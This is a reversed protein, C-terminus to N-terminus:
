CYNVWNINKMPATMPRKSQIVRINNTKEVHHISLADQFPTSSSSFSSTRSETITTTQNSSYNTMRSGTRGSLLGIRPRKLEERHVMEEIQNVRELLERCCSSNNEPKLATPITLQKMKLQNKKSQIMMKTMLQRRKNILALAHQHKMQVLTHQDINGKMEREDIIQVRHPVRALHPLHEQLRESAHRAFLTIEDRARSPNRLLRRSRNEYFTEIAADDSQNPSTSNQHTGRSYILFLIQVIRDAYTIKSTVDDLFVIKIDRTPDHAYFNKELDVFTFTRSKKLRYERKIKAQHDHLKQYSIQLFKQFKNESLSQRYDHEFKIRDDHTKLLNALTLARELQVFQYSRSLSKQRPIASAVISM